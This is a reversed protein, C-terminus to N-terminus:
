KEAKKAATKKVAPKKPASKEATKDATSTKKVAAKKTSATKKKAPKEGAAEALEDELSGIFKSLDLKNGKQDTVEVRRVMHALTKSRSVEASIMPLQGQQLIMQVFENPDIGYQQAMNSIYNLVENQSVKIENADAYTDLIVQSQIDHEARKKATKLEEATPEKEGQFNQQVFGTVADEVARQPLDFKVEKLLADLIQDGATAVVASLSSMKMDERLMDKVEDLSDVGLISALEAEDPEETSGDENKTASNQKFMAIREDVEKEDPEQVEVKVKRGEVKPVVIEPRVDVKATFEINKDEHDPDFAATVSIDPQSMVKLNEKIAAQSYADSIVHQTVESAIYGVGVKQKLLTRPVKGKRFGDAKVQEAMASYTEEVAKEFDKPEVIVELEVSIDNIRKLKTKM